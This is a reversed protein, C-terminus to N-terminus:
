RIASSELLAGSQYLRWLFYPTATLSFLVLAHWLGFPASHATGVLHFAMGVHRIGEPGDPRRVEVQGAGGLFATLLLGAAPWLAALRQRAAVWGIGWGILIPAGIYITRGVQFYLNAVGGARMGLPTMANPLFLSWGSWLLFLAVAWAAALVVLPAASFMLWPVRASWAHFRRQAIMTAALSEADGLRALAAAEADARGRGAQREEAMLDALHDALEAVYRRVHRPAVGARLLRERLEPFLRNM